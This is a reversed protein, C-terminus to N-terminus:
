PTPGEVAPLNKEKLVEKLLTLAYIGGLSPEKRIFGIRHSAEASQKLSACIKDLVAARLKELEPLSNVINVTNVRTM